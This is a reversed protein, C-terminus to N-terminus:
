PQEKPFSVYPGCAARFAQLERRGRDNTCNRCQCRDLMYRLVSHQAQWPKTLVKKPGPTVAAAIGSMMRPLRMIIAVVGLLLKLM